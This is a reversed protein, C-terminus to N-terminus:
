PTVMEKHWKLTYMNGVDVRMIYEAEGIYDARLRESFIPSASENDRKLLDVIPYFTHRYNGKSYFKEEHMLEESTDCIILLGRGQSFRRACELRSTFSAIKSDYRRRCSRFLIPRIKPMYNKLVIDWVDFFAKGKEEPGTLMWNGIFTVTDKSIETNNELIDILNQAIEAKKIASLRYIFKSDM